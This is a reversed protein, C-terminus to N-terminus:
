PVARKGIQAARLVRAAVPAALVGAAPAAASPGKVPGRRECLRIALRRDGHLQTCAKAEFLDNRLRPRDIERERM